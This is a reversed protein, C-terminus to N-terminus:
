EFYYFTITITTGSTFSKGIWITNENGGSTSLHIGADGTVGIVSGTSAYYVGNRNTIQSNYIYISYLENLQAASLGSAVYQGSGNSTYTKTVSKMITGGLSQVTLNGTVNFIKVGSKINGAM